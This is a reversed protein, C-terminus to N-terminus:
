GDGIGKPTQQPRSETDSESSPDSSLRNRIREILATLFGQLHKTEADNLALADFKIESPGLTPIEILLAGMRVDLHITDRLAAQDEAVSLARADHTDSKPETTFRIHLEGTVSNDVDTM